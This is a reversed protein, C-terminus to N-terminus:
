LYYNVGRIFNLLYDFVTIREVVIDAVLSQGVILKQPKDAAFVPNIAITLDYVDLGAANKRTTASVYMVEGKWIGYNRFPYSDIKLNAAQGLRLAKMQSSVVELKAVLNVEHPLITFMPTDNKTLTDNLWPKVFAVTGDIPARVEQRSLDDSMVAMLDFKNVRQGKEVFIDRLFMSDPTYVEVLEQDTAIVGQGTVAINITAWWSITFATLLLGILTYFIGRALVHPRELLFDRTASM